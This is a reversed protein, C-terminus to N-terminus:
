LGFFMKLGFVTERLGGVVAVAGDIIWQEPRLKEQRLKEQRLKEQQLQELRLQEKRLLEQRLQEKRLQELRHQEQRRPEEKRQQEYYEKWIEKELRRIEDEVEQDDDEQQLMREMREVSMGCWSTNAMEYGAPSAWIGPTYAPSKRNFLARGRPRDRIMRAIILPKTSSAKAGIDHTGSLTLVESFRFQLCRRKRREGREDPGDEEERSLASDGCTPTGPCGPDRALIWPEMQKYAALSAKASHSSWLAARQATVNQSYACDWKEEEEAMQAMKFVHNALQVKSRSWSHNTHVDDMDFQRKLSVKREEMNAYGRMARKYDDTLFTRDETVAKVKPIGAIQEQYSNLRETALIM